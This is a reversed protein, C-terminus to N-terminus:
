FTVTLVLGTPVLMLSAEPEEEKEDAAPEEEADEEGGEEAEDGGEEEDGAEDTPEAAPAPESVEPAESAALIYFLVATGLGAAGVVWSIDSMLAASESDSVHGDYTPKPCDTPNNAPDDVHARAAKACTNAEDRASLAQMGFWVASGVAAM